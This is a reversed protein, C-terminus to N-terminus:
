FTKNITLEYINMVTYEYFYKNLSILIEHKLGRYDLVHM